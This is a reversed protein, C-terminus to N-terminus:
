PCHGGLSVHVDATHLDAASSGDDHLGHGLGLRRVQRGGHGLDALDGLGAGVEDAHRHRALLVHLRELRDDRLRRDRDDGVDVEVVRERQLRDVGPRV